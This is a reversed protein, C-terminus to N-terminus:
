VRMSLSRKTMRAGGTAKGVKHVVGAVDSVMGLPLKSVVGAVPTVIDRVVEAGKKIGKWLDGFFGGGYLNKIENYTGAPAETADRVAEETLMGIDLSVVSDNVTFMGENVAVTYVQYDYDKAVADGDYLLNTFSVNYQLQYNGRSGPAELPGLSLDVSPELCLVSGTYQSWETWAQDCGNKVSIRYLDYESASSLMGSQNNWNVSIATIRACVNPVREGGDSVYTSPTVAAWIYLRKPVSHLTINNVAFLATSAGATTSGTTLFKNPKLKIGSSIYRVVEYYPYHILRPLTMTVPPTIYLVHLVPPKNNTGLLEVTTLPSALANNGGGAAPASFLGCLFRNKLNSSLTLTLDITQIGFLCAVDRESWNLPPIFLPEYLVLTFSRVRVAPAVGVNVLEVSEVFNRFQRSIEEVNTTYDAFPNRPGAIKGSLGTASDDYTPFQDPYSPSGSMYKNREDPSTGFRMLPNIIDSLNVTMTANNLKLSLTETAFACPYQRLGVDTASIVAGYTPLDADPIGGAGDPFTVKVRSEWYLRRSVGVNVSPTTTSFVVQSNTASIATYKNYTINAGGMKAYYVRPVLDLQPDQLKVVPVSTTM